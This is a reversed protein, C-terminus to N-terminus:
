MSIHGNSVDAKKQTAVDNPSVSQPCDLGSQKAQSWFGVTSDCVLGTVTLGGCKPCRKEKMNLEANIVNLMVPVLASLFIVWWNM